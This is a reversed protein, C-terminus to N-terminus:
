PPCSAAAMRARAAQVSLSRPRPAPWRQLVARYVDCAGARDKQAELAQGLEVRARMQEIPAHLFDCAAVGRRLAPVADDIRGALAHVNGLARDVYGEQDLDWAFPAIFASLTGLPREGLAARAEDPTRAPEAEFAVWAYAEDAPTRDVGEPVTAAWGAARRSAFDTPALTGARRLVALAWPRAIASGDPQLTPVLDVFAKAAARQQAVDGTEEAIAMRWRAAQAHGQEGSDAALLKEYAGLRSTAEVFDGAYIALETDVSAQWLDRNSITAASALAIAQQLAGRVTGPAAGGAALGQALYVQAVGSTPEVQVMRRAESELDACRGLGSDIAARIHMCTSAIPSVELCRALKGLAAQPDGAILDLDAQRLEPLAFQPDLPIARAFSVRAQELHNTVLFFAGGLFAVEADDPYAREADRVRAEVTAPASAAALAIELLARDRPDLQARLGESRAVLGRLETPTQADYLALRLQAAAFSPDLELAEGFRTNGEGMAGDRMSQLGAAYAALAAPSTSRPPAHATIASGDAAHGSPASPPGSAVAHASSPAASPTEGNGGARLALAGAAALLALAAVVWLRRPGRQSSGPASVEMSMSELARSVEGADAYRRTPDKELCREIVRDLAPPVDDVLSSALAPTDRLVAIPRDFPRRGTVLEYLLIGFSFVDTRADVPLTEWQEPSMYGPTGLMKGTETAHSAFAEGERLKAIGFDLIKVEGDADLMVNDPKLDRHVIGREHARAMGRAVGRGVRLAEAVAVPGRVLRARLTEGRVFEMAIYVRGRDEGVEFITAINPHAVAAAARAERLFRARRDPHEDDRPLVKVAVTRRLNEDHARYVVGMGGEGVREEIVFHAIRRLEEPAPQSM